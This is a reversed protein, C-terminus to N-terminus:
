RLAQEWQDAFFTLLKELQADDVARSEQSLQQLSLKAHAASHAHAFLHVLQRIMSRFRHVCGEEEKARATMAQKDEVSVKSPKKLLRWRLAWLKKALAMSAAHQQAEGRAKLKRRYSLRSQKLHGWSHKVTHCHDAPLRAQPYVATIAATFRQSDDSCAATVHLGLAQGRQLCQRAEEGNESAAEPTLLIRAPEDKLVLVGHDTGVPSDGDIHCATAPTLARLQRLREEPTPLHSGIADMWRKSSATTIPMLFLAACLVAVHRLSVGWVVALYCSLRLVSHRM